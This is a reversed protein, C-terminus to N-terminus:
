QQSKFADPCIRAVREQIEVYAARVSLTTSACMEIVPPAVSDLNQGLCRVWAKEGDGRNQAVDLLARYSPVIESCTKPAIKDLIQTDREHDARDCDFSLSMLETDLKNLESSALDHGLEQRARCYDNVAPAIDEIRQEVCKLQSEKLPSINREIAQHFRVLNLARDSRSAGGGRDCLISAPDSAAATVAALVTFLLAPIARM